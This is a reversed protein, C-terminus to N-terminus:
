GLVHGGVAGAIYLRPLATKMTRTDARVGGATMHWTPAGPLLDKAMNLGIKEYFEWGYQYKKSIEPEIHRFDSFNGGEWDAKGKRVQQYQAKMQQTYPMSYDFAGTDLYREGEKNVMAVMKPTGHIPNPFHHLRMWSDPYSMDASHYMQIELNQLEVGARLAMALGNAAMERTGTSRTALWNTHGTALITSKAVIEFLRGRAYDLVMAGGIEGGAGQILSLAMAEEMVDVDTALVDKRRAEGYLYGTMGHSHLIYSDGGRGPAVPRGAEDRLVFTGNAELNPFFEKTIWLAIEVLYDQDILWGHYDLNMRLQDALKGPLPLPVVKNVAAYISKLARLVGHPLPLNVPGALRSALPTAGSRGVKGKVAMLVKAGLAHAHLAATCGAAGGGIILVDTEITEARM